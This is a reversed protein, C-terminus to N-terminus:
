YTDTFYGDSSTDRGEWLVYNNITMYCHGSYGKLKHQTKIKNALNKWINIWYGLIHTHSYFEQNKNEFFLDRGPGYFYADFGMVAKKPYKVMEPNTAIIKIAEMGGNLIYFGKPKIDARYQRIEILKESRDNLYSSCRIDSVTFTEGEFIPFWGSISNDYYSINFDMDDEITPSIAPIQDEGPGYLAHWPCATTWIDEDIELRIDIRSLDNPSNIEIPFLKTAINNNIDKVSITNSKYKQGCSVYTASITIIKGDNHGRLTLYYTNNIKEIKFLLPFARKTAFCKLKKLYLPKGNYTEESRIYADYQGETGYYNEISPEDELLLPEKLLRNTELDDSNLKYEFKYAPVGNYTTKYVSCYVPNKYLPSVKDAVDSTLNYIKTIDATECYAYISHSYEGIIAIRDSDDSLLIKHEMEPEDVEIRWEEESVMNQTFDITANYLTNRKISFDTTEDQGLYFRYKGNTYKAAPTQVDATIEIYTCYDQIGPYLDRVTSPIKMKRDTNNPLLVGQLNEIFYMPVVEGANLKEIDEETLLDGTKDIETKGFVTAKTDTSFPYVDLACNIMRLDKVTYKAVTASPEIRVNYQGILKKVKFNVQSGKMYNMFSNAVPFGKTRFEDYSGVVYQMKSIESEDEPAEIEGVNGVMYVNFGDKTAPFTMHVASMDTFYKCYDKLLAGEHYVFINIDTIKNLEESTFSSKTPCIVEPQEIEIEFSYSGDANSPYRRTDHQEGIMCSTLVAMLSLLTTFRKM